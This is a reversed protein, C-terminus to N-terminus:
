EHPRPQFIQDIALIGHEDVAQIRVSYAHNPVEYANITFKPLGRALWENVLLGVSYTRRRVLAPDTFDWVITQAQNNENLSYLILTSDSQEYNEFKDYYYPATADEVDRRLRSVVAGVQPNTLFDIPMKKEYGMMEKTLMASIIIVVGFISLAVIIELLTFGGENDESRPGRVESSL